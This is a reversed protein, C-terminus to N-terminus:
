SRRMYDVCFRGFYQFDPDASDTDSDSDPFSDLDALCYVKRRFQDKKWIKEYLGCLFTRFIRFQFDSDSFCDLMYYDLDDLWYFGRELTFPANKCLQNEFVNERYYHPIM